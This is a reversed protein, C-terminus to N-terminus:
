GVAVYFCLQCWDTLGADEAPERGSRLLHCRVMGYNRTWWGIICFEQDNKQLRINVIRERPIDSILNYSAIWRGYDVIGFCYRAMLIQRWPNLALHLPPRSYKCLNVRESTQQPHQEDFAQPTDARCCTKKKVWIKTKVLSKCFKGHGRRMRQSQKYRYPPLWRPSTEGWGLQDWEECWGLQDWGNM